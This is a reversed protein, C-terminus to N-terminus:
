RHFNQHLPLPGGSWGEGDEARREAVAHFCAECAYDSNLLSLCRARVDRRARGSCPKVGSLFSSEPSLCTLERILTTAQAFGMDAAINGIAYSLCM